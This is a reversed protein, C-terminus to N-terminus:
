RIRTRIPQAFMYADTCEDSGADMKSKSELLPFCNTHIMVARIIPDIMRKTSFGRMKSPKDTGIYRNTSARSIATINRPISTFPEREQNAKPGILNWGASIDLIDVDSSRAVTILWCPYLIPLAFSKRTVAMIMRRGIIIMIRWLSVPDARTYTPNIKM